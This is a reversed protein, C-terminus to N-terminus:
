RALKLRGATHGTAPNWLVIRDPGGGTLQVAVLGSFQGSVGAIHTGPPEDLILLREASVPLSVPATQTTQATQQKPHSLRHAIVAILAGSGALILLGMVIVAVFLGRSPLPTQEM